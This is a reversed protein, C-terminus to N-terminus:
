GCTRDCFCILNTQYSKNKIFGYQNGSVKYNVEPPQVMAEGAGENNLFITLPLVNIETNWSEEFIVALLEPMAESLELRFKMLDLQNSFMRCGVYGVHGVRQWSIEQDQLLNFVNESM